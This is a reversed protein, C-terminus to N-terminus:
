AQGVLVGVVAVIAAGLTVQILSTSLAVQLFRKSSRLRSM